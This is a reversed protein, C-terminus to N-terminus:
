EVYMMPFSFTIGLPIEDPLERGALLTDECYALIVEALCDGLWNFLDEAKEVKLHDGIPWSRDHYKRYRAPRGTRAHFPESHHNEPKGSQDSEDRETGLLDIFAIRLNSGGFDFAIFTGKEYGTPLHTIPTGLFQEQSNLALDRYTLSLQRTLSQIKGNDIALPALWADFIASESSM